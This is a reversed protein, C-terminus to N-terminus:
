SQAPHIRSPGSALVFFALSSALGQPSVIRWIEKVANASIDDKTL